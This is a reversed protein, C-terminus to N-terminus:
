GSRRVFGPTSLKTIIDEVLQELPILSTEEEDRNSIPMYALLCDQIELGMTELREALASERNVHDLVRDVLRSAKGIYLPVQWFIMAELARGIEERVDENEAYQRLAEEKKRSLRKPKITLGVEYFPNIRSERKESLPKEFLQLVTDVFNDKSTLAAPSLTLDLFWAYVAPTDAHTGFANYCDDKTTIQQYRVIEVKPEYLM